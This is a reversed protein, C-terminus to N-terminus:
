DMAQLQCGGCPAASPCAPTVRFPSPELIKILRGFGYTKKAKIVKGEIRDGIIADKIFLTYGDVRGIGEGQESMDEIMTQFIQNKEM